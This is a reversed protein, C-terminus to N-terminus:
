HRQGNARDRVRQFARYPRGLLGLALTAFGAAAFGRPSLRAAFVSQERDLSTRARHLAPSKERLPSITDEQAEPRKTAPAAKKQHRTSSHAKRQAKRHHASGTTQKQKGSATHTTSPSLPPTSSAGQSSVGQAAAMAASALLTAFLRLVSRM